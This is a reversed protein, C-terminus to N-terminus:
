VAESDEEIPVTVPSQDEGSGEEEGGKRREEARGM